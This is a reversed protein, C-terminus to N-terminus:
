MPSYVSSRNWDPEKEGDFTERIRVVSASFTENILAVQVSQPLDADTFFRRSRLRIGTGSTDTSVKNFYAIQPEKGPFVKLSYTFGSSFDTEDPPLTSSFAAARVGPLSRTQEVVRTNFERVQEPKEYRAGKLDMQLTLVREPNIGLDVRQLRWLSKILLGAGTVLMVALALEAVVLIGRGRRRGASETTTRGGDRLVEILNLRSSQWAPALGFIVGTLVSVLGTWLLVYGDIKIQDLRPLNEPAFKVLASVGWMAVLSGVLGGACALLLSETLLRRVIRGRSAGLAAHISIEKRSVARVLTLNAVNVATILLVFTVAVLLVLLTARVDGVLYDNVSLVNFTFQSKDFSSAMTKTDARAQELQVGPKLRAVGTLFYPGRRAPQATENPWAM